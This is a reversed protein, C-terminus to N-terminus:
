WNACSSSPSPCCCRRIPRLLVLSVVVVLLKDAVPDLFAGLETAQDLKRALYGDLWDTLSAVTFIAAAILQAQAQDSHYFWVIPPILAIRLVTTLNALNM